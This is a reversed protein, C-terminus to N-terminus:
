TSEFPPILRHMLEANTFHNGANWIHKKTMRSGAIVFDDSRHWISVAIMHVPNFTRKFFMLADYLFANKDFGLAMHEFFDWRLTRTPSRDCQGRELGCGVSGDLVSTTWRGSRVFM